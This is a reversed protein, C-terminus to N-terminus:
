NRGTMRKERRGTQKRKNENMAMEQKKEEKNV